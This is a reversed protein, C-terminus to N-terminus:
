IPYVLSPSTTLLRHGLNIYKYNLQMPKYANIKMKRESLLGMFEQDLLVLELPIPVMRTGGHTSPGFQCGFVMWTKAM